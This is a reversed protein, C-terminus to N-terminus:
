SKDEEYTAKGAVIHFDCGLGCLDSCGAVRHGAVCTAIPDGGCPALDGIVCRCDNDQSVLGDYGNRRLYNAIMDLGTIDKNKM